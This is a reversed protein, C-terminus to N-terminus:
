QTNKDWFIINFTTVRVEFKSHLQPHGQLESGGAEVEQTRPNYAHAVM